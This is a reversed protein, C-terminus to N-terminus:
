HLKSNTSAETYMSFSSFPLPSPPPPPFPPPVFVLELIKFFNGLLFIKLKKILLNMKEEESESQNKM